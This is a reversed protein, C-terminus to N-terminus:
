KKYTKFVAENIVVPYKKKLQAIWKAEMEDQFGSIVEGKAETFTKQEPQTYVKIIYAFNATNDGANHEIATVQNAKPTESGLGPIKSFDFRGSDVTSKDAYLQVSEKWEAPNAKIRNYLQNATAADACYFIIADASTKWSFKAKNKNYYALQGLSDSQAPGWIKKMMIEFFLNGDKFDKMQNRFDVNYEELHDKYYEFATQMRFEDYIQKSSKVTRGDPNFRHNIVFNIYDGATPTRDALKFLPTQQGIHRVPHEPKKFEVLSDVFANLEKMDFSLQKFGAKGIIRNFLIQKSMNIRPDSELRSKLDDMTKRDRVTSVPTLGLKRVIHIGYQTEFPPSYASDKLGFLIDEFVPDYTGVTFGRMLGGQANTVYDNSFMNALTAFDDGALVRKYLSDALLQVKKRDADTSQPPYALLIQSAKMTGAAKREKINKFIHYGFGSRYPTSFKGPSLKYAISEFEYPLSFVTIYGLNGKNSKVSPDASYAMAVDEFSKGSQLEKHALRIQNYAASTDDNKYPIFIHAVQIDKQSRSFAENLLQDITQQDTMYNEIVQARLSALEQKFAATTDYGKDIAERIKLKSLIYLDLYNRMNAATSTGSDPNVKNYARLFEKVDVKYKGYTFLTQADPFLSSFLFIAVILIRHNM